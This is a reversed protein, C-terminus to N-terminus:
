HNNAEQQLAWADLREGHFFWADFCRNFVEENIIGDEFFELVHYIDVCDWWLDDFFKDLNWVTRYLIDAVDTRTMQGTLFRERVDELILDHVMQEDIRFNLTYERLLSLVQENDSICTCLSLVLDTLPEETELADDFAADFKDRIGVLLMARYYEVTEPTM